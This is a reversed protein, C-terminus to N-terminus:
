LLKLWRRLLLEACFLGLVLALIGGNNWLDRVRKDAIASETQLTMAPLERLSAADVVQGEAAAALRQLFPLDVALHEDELSSKGSRVNLVAVGSNLDPVTAELRVWPAKVPIFSGTFTREKSGASLAISQASGDPAYAMLLVQNATVPRSGEPLQVSIAAKENLSVGPSALQIEPANGKHQAVWLLMQQWLKEYAHSTSPLNLQWRWISDTALVASRGEGFREMALLPRKGWADADTPHQAAVMAGPKARQVAAYERFLPANEEPQDGLSGLVSHGDPTFEMASLKEVASNNSSDEETVSGLADLKALLRAATSEQGANGSGNDGPEPEFVVPLLQELSSGSFDSAVASNSVVFILGGGGKVYDLLAGSQQETLQSPLLDALIIVDYQRLDEVTKPFSSADESTRSENGFLVQHRLSSASVHVSSELVIAPNDALAARLYRYEISLSGSYYLAHVKQRDVIETSAFFEDTPDTKGDELLQVQYDQRGTAQGTFNFTLKQTHSGPSLTMKSESVPQSNQLVRVTVEHATATDSQVFVELPYQTQVTNTPPLHVNALRMFEPQPLDTQTAALILPTQYDRFLRGTEEPDGTTTDNGDTYVIVGGWGDPPASNLLDSLSALLHTEREPDSISGLADPTSMAELKDAFTYLKMQNDWIRALSARAIDLRSERHADLRVMSGSGDVLIAIPKHEDRRFSKTLVMQPEALCGLLLLLMLCRLATLTWRWGPSLQRLTRRYAFWILVFGVALTGLLGAFGGPFAWHWSLTEKMM